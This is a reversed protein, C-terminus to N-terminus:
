TFPPCLPRCDSLLVRALSLLCRWLEMRRIAACQDVHWLCLGNTVYCNGYWITRGNRGRARGYIGGEGRTYGVREYRRGRSIDRRKYIVVEIADFSKIISQKCHVDLNFPPSYTEGESNTASCSYQGEDIKTVHKITLIDDVPLVGSTENYPVLHGQLWSSIYM